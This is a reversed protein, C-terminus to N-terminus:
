SDLVLISWVGACGNNSGNFVVRIYRANVSTGLVREDYLVGTASAIGAMGSFTTWTNADLSYQPTHNYARGNLSHDFSIRFRKVVRSQGLDIAIFTVGAVLPKIWRSSPDGDTVNKLNLLKGPGFLDNLPTGLNDFASQIPWTNATTSNVTVSVSKTTSKAPGTPTGNDTVQVSATYVGATAYTIPGRTNFSAGSGSSTQGNGFDWSYNLNGTGDDTANANFSVTSGATIVAPNPTPVLNVSPPNNVAAASVNV